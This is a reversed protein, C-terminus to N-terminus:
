GQDKSLLVARYEDEGNTSSPDDQAWVHRCADNRLIEEATASAFNVADDVKSRVDPNSFILSGHPM